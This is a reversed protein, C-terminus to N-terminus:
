KALLRVGVTIALLYTNGTVAESSTFGDSHTCHEMNSSNLPQPTNWLIFLQHLSCGSMTSSMDANFPFRESVYVKGFNPVKSFNTQFLWEYNSYWHRSWKSHLRWSLYLTGHKFLKLTSSYEVFHIASTPSCGSITPSM